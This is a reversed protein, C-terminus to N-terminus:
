VERMISELTPEEIYFDNVKINESLLSKIACVRESSILEVTISNKNLSIKNFGNRNLIELAKSVSDQPILLNLKLKLGLEEGLNNTASELILKGSKMVFVKEALYEVEDLRHSSFIITKGADKFKKILELFERRVNADLNSTPEDLILIPSNSLLAIGFSLRQRMGGSLEYTSKLCHKELGVQNLVSDIREKSVNRITGFFKLVDITRMDYFSPEQPVYGILSKALKPKANIDVSNIEILGSYDLLGLVCRILTSKGAGNPGLLAVSEGKDITCSVSDVAKVKGFYKTLEDIKIM